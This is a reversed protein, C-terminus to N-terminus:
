TRSTKFVQLQNLAPSMVQSKLYSRFQSKVLLARQDFAFFTPASIAM